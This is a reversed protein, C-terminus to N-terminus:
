SPPPSQDRTADNAVASRSAFCGMCLVTLKRDAIDELSHKPVWLARECDACAYAAYEEQLRSVQFHEIKDREAAYRAARVPDAEIAERLERFSRRSM